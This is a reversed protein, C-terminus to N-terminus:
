YKIKSIENEIHNIKWGIKTKLKTCDLRMDKPREINQFDVSSVEKILKSDFKFYNALKVSFEYKSLGNKSGFNYTGTIAHRCIHDVLDFLSSIHVPSFYIDKYGTMEQGKKLNDYLQNIYAHHKKQNYFDFFNTRLICCNVKNAFLEAFYKTLAYVNLPECNSSEVHPGLGNYVQDSSIHILFIDLKKELIIESINKVVQINSKFAKHVNSQCLNVDTFAITNIIIEPKFKDLLLNLNEKISLDSPSPNSNIDYINKNLHNQLYSGLRGNSGLILIKKKNEKLFM